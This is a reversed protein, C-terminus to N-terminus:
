LVVMIEVSAGVRKSVLEIWRPLGATNPVELFRLKQFIHESHVIESKRQLRRIMRTVQISFKHAVGKRGLCDVVGFPKRLVRHPMGANVILQRRIRLVRAANAPAREVVVCMAIESRAVADTIVTNSVDEALRFGSGTEVLRLTVRGFFDHEFRCEVPRSAVFRHAEGFGDETGVAVVQLNIYIVPQDSFNVRVTLLELM